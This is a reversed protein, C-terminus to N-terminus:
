TLKEIEEKLGLVGLRPSSLVPKGTKEALTNEMRSMSAQALVFVDAKDAIAMATDLIMQDHAATDGALFKDFAGEALGELVEVSKGLEVSRSKVLRM